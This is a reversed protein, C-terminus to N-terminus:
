DGYLRKLVSLQKDMSELLNKCRDGQDYYLRNPVLLERMAPMRVMCTNPIGGEKAQKNKLHVVDSENTSNRLRYNLDPTEKSEQCGM